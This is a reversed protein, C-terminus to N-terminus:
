KEKRWSLLTKMDDLQNAIEQARVVSLEITQSGSRRAREVERTIADSQIESRVIIANM